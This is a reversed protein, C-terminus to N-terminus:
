RAGGGRSEAMRRKLRQIAEVPTPDRGLLCALYVSAFDGVLIAHFVRELTSQGEARLVWPEAGAERLLALTAEERAAWAGPGAGTLVVPLQRAVRSDGFWASLENHHAEPLPGWHALLKPNENLQTAFRRAAVELPGAGYILAPRDRLARALQKAPNDKEPAGPLLRARAQELHAAVREPEKELPALGLRELAALTAFSLHGLAARPQLGPPVRVLDGRSEAMAALDGGSTVALLAAGKDLAQRACALTEETGGSYSVAVCLSGRGVWAPLAYGRTVTCPVAGREGLWLAAVDAGMASGGMAAFALGTFPGRLGPAHARGQEASARVQEPLRALVGLMDSADVRRLAAPDDLM